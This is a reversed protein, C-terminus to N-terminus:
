VLEVGKGELLRRINEPRGIMQLAHGFKVPDRIVIVEHSLINHNEKVPGIRRIETGGFSIDYLMIEKMIIDKNSSRTIKTTKKKISQSKLNIKIKILILRSEATLANM